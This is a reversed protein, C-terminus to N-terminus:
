KWSIHAGAGRGGSFRALVISKWHNQPTTKPGFGLLQYSKTMEASKRVKWSFLPFLQFFLFICNKWKKPPFHGGRPPHFGNGAAINEMNEQSQLCKGGLILKKTPNHVKESKEHFYGPIRVKLHFPPGQRGVGGFGRQKTLSNWHKARGSFIHFVCFKHKKMIKMSKWSFGSIKLFLHFDSIKSTKRSKSALRGGWFAIQLLHISCSNYAWKGM